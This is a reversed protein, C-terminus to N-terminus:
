ASPGTADIAQAAAITAELARLILDRLQERTIERRALWRVIAGEMFHM